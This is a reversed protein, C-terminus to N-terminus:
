KYKKDNIYLEVNTDNLEKLNDHHHEEKIYEVFKGKEIYKIGVIINSDTNDLFYIKKNIDNKEIKIKM